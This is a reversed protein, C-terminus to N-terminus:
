TSIRLRLINERVKVYLDPHDQRLRKLIREKMEAAAKETFTLTLIREPAVGSRLLEIYRRSLEETKGSGAPAAVILSKPM